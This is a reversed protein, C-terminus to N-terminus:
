AVTPRPMVRRTVARHGPARLSARMRTTLCRVLRRAQASTPIVQLCNSTPVSTKSTLWHPVESGHADAPTASEAAASGLTGFYIVKFSKGLTASKFDDMRTAGSITVRSGIAVSASPVAAWVEGDSSRLRLYTYKSVPVTELM